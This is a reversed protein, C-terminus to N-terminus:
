MRWTLRQPWSLAAEVLLHCLGERLQLLTLRWLGRHIGTPAAVQLIQITMITVMAGERVTAEQHITMVHVPIVMVVTPLIEQHHLCMLEPIMLIQTIM